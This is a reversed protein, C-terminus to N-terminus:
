AHRKSSNRISDKQNHPPYRRRPPLATFAQRFAPRAHHSDGESATLDVRADRLSEATIRLRKLEDQWIDRAKSLTMSAEALLIRRAPLDSENTAAEFITDFELMLDDFGLDM